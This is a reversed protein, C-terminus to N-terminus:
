AIKLSPISASRDRDAMMESRKCEFLRACLTLSQAVVQDMNYYRYTGLRGAFHVGATAAALEQYKHYLAANEPRPVPYYPDGEACPYEYVVSTKPHQQGTLYKFETVRTFDHDNPYNIVPASQFVERQLTEHRFNLSRYPLRGFRHGFYEDVPGTFILERHAIHHVADRFDTDLLVTINEHDLMNEFMHTYGHLPMTQYTDTFYRDDRSTRVPIRAIVSADLQSPDLGWQKRTYGLFLKEYLDRGVRSVVVDESTRLTDRKEAVSEFWAELENSEMSLGYLRNVTDLNIPVPVLKGGVSAVVRHEYPRWATFRSLYDFVDKSNTHFIHPGYKHVLVGHEDHHDYANGAIHPRRDIIAVTKGFGRALQEAITAGAFGAGVILYDFEFSRTTTNIFTATSAVNSSTHQILDRMRTWTKDWSNLSLQTDVRRLWAADLRPRELEVQAAAVFEKATSVIQVFGHDGYDRVVDRIPTSVVPLGAALYEPTKTPSIFRTSDNLAFPMMALDWGALYGPLSKYDKGGLYHINPRVPLTAPDIKVVPGLMVFHWHPQLAAAKEILEIDIREDIVGCYGIRPHPISSQDDPEAMSERAAAFHERDVSSPFLHAGPHLARKAEYLARGGTFVLHARALLHAERELLEPPANRFLSLEDMCDYIIARADLGDALPLAMPSYFWLLPKEIAHEVLLKHLMHRQASESDQRSMGHPLQPTAVIVGSSPCTRTLLGPKADTLLPEEFFFVRQQRAFRSM